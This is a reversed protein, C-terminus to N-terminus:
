VTTERTERRAGKGDVGRFSRREISVACGVVFYTLGYNM